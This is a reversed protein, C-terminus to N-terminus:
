FETLLEALTPNIDDRDEIAIREKWDGSRVYLLLCTPPVTAGFAIYAGSQSAAAILSYLQTPDAMGWDLLEASKQRRSRKKTGNVNAVHDNTGM